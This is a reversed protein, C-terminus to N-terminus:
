RVMEEAPRTLGPTSKKRKEKKKAEEGKLAAVGAAAKEVVTAAPAAGPRARVGMGKKKKGVRMAKKRGV